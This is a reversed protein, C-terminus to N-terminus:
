ASLCWQAPLNAFTVLLAVVTTDVLDNVLEHVHETIRGIWKMDSVTTQDTQSSSGDGKADVNGRVHVLEDFGNERAEDVRLVPYSVEGGFAQVVDGLNGLALNKDIEVGDEISEALYRM